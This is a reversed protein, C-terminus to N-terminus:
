STAPSRYPIVGTPDAVGIVASGGRLATFAGAAGGADDDGAPSRYPKVVGEIEIGCAVVAPLWGGYPGIAAVDGVGVVGTADVAGVVTADSVAVVVAGTGV